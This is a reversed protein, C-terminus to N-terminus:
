RLIKDVYDAARRSLDRYNAGYFMLGGSVVHERFSHITPLRAAFALTNILPGNVFVLWEEVIRLAQVRGKIAEFAPVIDETRRIERTVVELGLTSAATQVEVMELATDPNSPNVMIFQRRRVDPMPEGEPVREFGPQLRGRFRRSTRLFDNQISPAAA